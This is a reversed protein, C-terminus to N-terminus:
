NKITVTHTSKVFVEESSPIIFEVTATQTGQTLSIKTIDIQAIIDEGEIEEISSSTGMLLVNTIETSVVEIDNGQSNVVRIDTVSVLKESINDSPITATINYVDDLSTYGEPYQVIFDYNKDFEINKLDVYGAVYETVTAQNSPAGVVVTKPNIEENFISVDFGEPVNTYEIKVPLEVRKLVPIIVEIEENDLNLVESEIINGLNDYLVVEAMIATTQTLVDDSTVAVKAQSIKDVENEPGVVVLEQINSYIVGSLFDESISIGTADIFIPFERSIVKDFYVTINDSSLSDITINKFTSLSTATLSLTYEGPGNVNTLVPYVIIDEATLDGIDSRLGSVTVNVDEISTSIVDLGLNQYQSQVYETSVPVDRIVISDTNSQYVIVYGWIFVSILFSILLVFKNNELLKNKLM